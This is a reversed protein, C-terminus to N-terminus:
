LTFTACRPMLGVTLSPETGQSDPGGERDPWHGGCMAPGSTQSGVGCFKRDLTISLACHFYNVRAAGVELNKNEKACGSQKCDRRRWSEGLILKGFQDAPDFRGRHCNFRVVSAAFFKRAAAAKEDVDIPDYCVPVVNYAGVASLDM